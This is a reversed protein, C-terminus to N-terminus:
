DSGPRANRGVLARVNAQVAAVDNPLVVFREEREFLDSL